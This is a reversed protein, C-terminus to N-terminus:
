IWGEKVYMEYVQQMLQEITIERCHGCSTTAGRRLNGGNVVKENGCKCRVMWASGGAYSLVLLREFRRGVLDIMLRSM